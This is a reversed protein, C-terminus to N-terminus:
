PTFREASTLVVVYTPVFLGPWRRLLTRGVRNDRAPGILCYEDVVRWGHVGAHHRCFDQAERLTFHWRHRDGPPELPLGWKGTHRGRLAKWRLKVDYQNPLSLVIHKRAVRCLEAFSDHIRDTHELVDLAVVVDAARDPFPLGVGVDAVVDGSSSLDVGVYRVFPHDRLTREVERTRCGVDLVTGTWIGSTGAVIGAAKEDSGGSAMALPKVAQLSDVRPTTPDGLSRLPEM